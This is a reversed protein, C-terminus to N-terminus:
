FLDVVRPSGAWHMVVNRWDVVRQTLSSQPYRENLHRVGNFSVAM